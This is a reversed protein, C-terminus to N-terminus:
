FDLQFQSGEVVPPRFLQTNQPIERSGCNLGLRKCALKFRDRLLEAVPGTGRM